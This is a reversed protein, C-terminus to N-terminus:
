AAAGGPWLREPAAAPREGVLEALRALRRRGAIVYAPGAQVAGALGVRTLAADVVKDLNGDPDLGLAYGEPRPAGAAAVWLRLQPGTLFLRDAAPPWARALGNLRSSYATRVEFSVTRAEANVEEEVTGGAVDEAQDTAASAADAGPQEGAGEGPGASGEDVQEEAAALTLEVPEATLEAVHEDADGATVPAWTVVLGRAVLEEVLVHVRWAADVRVSVRATGGMRGLRGPGTLLGALDALSPDAAEVGFISLQRGAPVAPAARRRAPAAPRAHASPVPAPLVERPILPWGPETM